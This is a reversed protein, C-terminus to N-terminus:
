GGPVHGAERTAAAGLVTRRYLEAHRAIMREVSFEREIRERAATGMRRRQEADELLEHTLGALRARDGVPFLFGTEGPIVLDRNGPIDSVVAPIGWAMAEMLANSQGEYGSANWYVDVHPLIRDVDDRHGLFRVWSDVQIVDAFREVSARDPGDGILLLCVNPRLIRLLDVARLLDKQRKQPWFRGIAGLLITEPPLRLEALLEQRTSTPESSCPAIGNPIIVFRDAAIGHQVYFDRVGSSNTVIWDTYRALYRDIALEHWRKWHDACREGAIIHRVGASRAAQRGYANAAFLWTHVLDPRLRVLQRKLRGYAGPDVKWRKEVCTVEIGAQRLPERMPGLRTLALVHVDFDDRPLGCALLTLQKEAGARDLSPIIHM